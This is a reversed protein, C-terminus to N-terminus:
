QKLPPPIGGKDAPQAQVARAKAQNRIRKKRKLFRSVLGKAPVPAIVRDRASPNGAQPNDSRAKAMLRSWLALRWSELENPEVKALLDRQAQTPSGRSAEIAAGLLPSEKVVAPSILARVADFETTRNHAAFGEAMTVLVPEPLRALGYSKAGRFANDPDDADLSAEIFRTATEVDDLKAKEVWGRLYSRAAVTQGRDLMIEAVMLSTPDGPQSVDRALEIAVDAKGKDILTDMLTLTVLDNRSSKVWRVARRLADRVQDQEIMLTFLQYRERDGKLRRVDDVSRLLAAAQRGDGGAAVLQALRVVDDARRYGAARCKELAQQEKEYAGMRRHIGILEKCTSETYRVSIQSDLAAVYAPVDQMQSYLQQLRKQLATDRPRAEVLQELTRRLKPLDGFQEYFRQMQYLTHQRRDGKEFRAELISLAERYRGDRELMAIRESDGPLMAYGTLLAGAFLAIMVIMQRKVRM